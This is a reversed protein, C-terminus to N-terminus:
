QVAQVTLCPVRGTTQRSSFHAPSTFGSKTPECPFTDTSPRRVGSECPITDTSPQRGGSECPITDTSPRRVGSECPITDTTLGRVWQGDTKPEDAKPAEVTDDPTLGRVWRGSM